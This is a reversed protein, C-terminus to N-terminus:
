RKDKVKMEAREICFSNEELSKTVTSGAAIFCGDAITIPAILNSNSGIFVNNGVTTRHKQKGDYNCFVVGCGINTNYGVEADGIYSLHAAKTHSGITSKKVEVFNGIRVSDNIYSHERIHANPGVTCNKGVFSDSIHSAYVTTGASIVSNIIVCYPYITVGEEIISGGLVSVFPYIKAKKHVKASKEIFNKMIFCIFIRPKTNSICWKKM